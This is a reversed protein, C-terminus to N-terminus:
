INLSENLIGYFCSRYKFLYCASILHMKILHLNYSAHKRFPNIQLFIILKSLKSNYGDILIVKDMISLCKTTVEFKCKTVKPPCLQSIIMQMITDNTYTTDNDRIHNMQDCSEVQYIQPNEIRM